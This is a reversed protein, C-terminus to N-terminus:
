DPRNFYKIGYYDGLMLPFSAIVSVEGNPIHKAIQSALLKKQCVSDLELNFKGCTIWNYKKLSVEILKLWIEYTYRKLNCCDSAIYSDVYSKFKTGQAIKYVLDKFDLTEDAARFCKIAEVMPYSLYLKGKDTEEDFFDLLEEIKKDDATSIHGDYDFFLFIQSFNTSSFSQLHPNKEKLLLFVDLDDDEDLDKYLRYIDTKYATKVIVRGEDNIFHSLLNTAIQDETREGEFVFLIHDAM